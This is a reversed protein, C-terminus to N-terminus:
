KKMRKRAEITAAAIRAFAPYILDSLIASCDTVICVFDGAYYDILEETVADGFIIRFLREALDNFQNVDTGDTKSIEARIVNAQRWVQSCNVTFPITKIVEGSADTLEIKDRILSSQIKM